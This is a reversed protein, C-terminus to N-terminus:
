LSLHTFIHSFSKGLMQVFNVQLTRPAHTHTHSRTHAHTHAYTHTHTCKHAHTHMHTRTHTQTQTYTHTHARTYIHQTKLIIKHLQPQQGM